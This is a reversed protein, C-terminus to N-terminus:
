PLQKLLQAARDAAPTGPKLRVVERLHQGAQRADGKALLLEALVEHADAFQPDAALAAELQRQADDIRRQRGLLMAYNFRTSPDNPRLKLAAAFEREAEVPKAGALLQGLNARADAYDPRLRIAERFSAEAQPTGLRLLGLNNHAEAFDPDCRLATTLARIADDPRGLARYAQALEHWAIATDPRLTAARQLAAVGEAAQGTRRLSTGLRQWAHAWAPDRRTAERFLPIAKALKGDNDLADALEFYWEARTPRHKEILATLRTIGAQLNSKQKVQAVALYLENDPTSPLSAPYHLVVEGRYDDRREALEAMLDGVPRRRQIYHDTVAVHIVDETRRKPMHCDVCNSQATHGDRTSVAAHCSRCVGNYHRAAAEGRPADHPNHCTTCLLKGKTFCESRRLRYAANVIEFKEERGTGPAHDFNLLFDALAQGPRFSFPGREYRQIANPLPFSTSELHCAMCIEMQRDAPLKKPNLITGRAGRAQVHRTGDGHCRACDIGAPLPSRYVAEDFAKSAPVQPYANHCFMCDYTIPRRFGDHDARDYGPNMALYGGKEAYWGLPLELLAGAPTRHLFTRAHNGSGMVYDIRKEMVNVEKGASDVQHRRQFFQGARTLVRFHSESAGHYYAGPQVNAASAVDFSRGMGTKQYADVITRHCGACVLAGPGQALAVGSVALVVLWPQM